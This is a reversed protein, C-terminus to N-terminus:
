VVSSRTSPTGSALHCLRRRCRLPRGTSPLPRRCSSRRRGAGNKKEEKKRAAKRAAKEDREKKRAAKKVRREERGAKKVAKVAAKEKAKEAYFAEMAAVDEPFQEHWELRLSIRRL